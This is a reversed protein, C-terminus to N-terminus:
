KLKESLVKFALPADLDSIVLFTDERCSVVHVVNIDESALASFILSMFGPTLDIEIPSKINIIVLNKQCFPFENLNETTEEVFYMFGSPSKSFAISNIELEKESQIALVKNLISFNSKRLLDIVKKEKSSNKKKLKETLRILSVKVSDFSGYNLENCIKRSLASYNVIGQSVAELVFPKKKLYDEIQKSLPINQEM